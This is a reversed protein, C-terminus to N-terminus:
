VAEWVLVTKPKQAVAVINEFDWTWGDYSEYGGSLKYTQYFGGGAIEFVVYNDSSTYGGYSDYERDTNEAIVKATWDKPLGPLNIEDNVALYEWEVFEERDSDENASEAAARRLTEVDFVNAMTFDDSPLPQGCSLCNM